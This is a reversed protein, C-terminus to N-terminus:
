EINKTMKRTQTSVSCFSSCVDKSPMEAKSGVVDVGSGGDAGGGGGDSGGWANLDLFMMIILMALSYFVVFSVDDRPM